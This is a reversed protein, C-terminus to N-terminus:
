SEPRSQSWHNFSLSPFDMGSAHRADNEERNVSEREVRGKAESEKKKKKKKKHGCVGLINM